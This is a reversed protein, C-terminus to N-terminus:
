SPQVPRKDSNPFDPNSDNWKRLELWYMRWQQATGLIGVEGYEIATVNQQARPMEADRWQIEIAALEERSPVYLPEVYDAADIVVGGLREAELEIDVGEPVAGVAGGELLILKM